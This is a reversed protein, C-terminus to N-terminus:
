APTFVYEHQGDRITLTPKGDKEGVVFEFGVIGPEITLFSVSGDPNTRSAVESAYEGFDFVTKAGERKLTITGLATSTYTAALKGVLAPDAPVTLLKRMAALREFFATANAAVKADAEPRGDFMVELLKRQFQDRILWGPNGNTLIVAGVGHEPLWMMDSHFGVMDGGHHVVTVGWTKDVILGMGYTADTGIAVQPARRALLADKGIYAKGGITGEALEMRVYKLMDNVTSWAGGAPRVPAVSTNVKAIALEPKSDVTPAHPVAANGSQGKKFDFTTASMKLPGLVKAQMAKDFAAGLELEPYMVHGGIFGAAAALSNSYQFLEGFKSTPQMTGLREMVKAPTVGAFEFSWELDQRPLGTCACILHKVM